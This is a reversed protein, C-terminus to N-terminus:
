RSLSLRARGGRSPDGSSGYVRPGDFQPDFASRYTGDAQLDFSAAVWGRPLQLSLRGRAVGGPRPDFVYQSWGPATPRIGFLRRVIVNAPASGWPHAWSMNPKDDAIWSETTAVAGHNLMELWSRPGDRTMLAVAARDEGHEFLTELLFQATFVSCSMGKQKIFELCRGIRDPPALGFRLAYMNAHLSSHRSGLSDVYLGTAEDFLDRNFARRLQDALEAFQRSEDGHGLWQALKSLLDLDWYAYANPVADAQGFEYGDRCSPPWDVHQERPFERILGDTMLAHFSTKDRLYEYHEAVFEYDGSHLLYEYFLPIYLQWWEIPWTPHDILYALTRRATDYTGETCFQTLMTVYADAEYALRERTLCDTYVDATAHAVSNRCLHWIRTLRDDSCEFTSREPDFPAGIAIARLTRRPDFPGRWGVIEAYRFMRVGFHSLPESEPAFTWLEQYCNGTRLQYRAHGNPQLEEALRVEVAGGGAPCALEIGGLVARGFDFLYNGEGLQTVAANLRAIQYPPADCIELEEVVGEACRAPQWQSDDFGTQRWGQPYAGARGDIHERYEGPGPDGKFFQDIAQCEWCVARYINNADRQKWHQNTVIRQRSGDACTVDLCLAFGKNEGRSAVALANQGIRLLATVDYEQLVPTGDKLPRFPGVAALDGNLFVRYKIFSGGVLWQEYKYKSPLLQWHHIAYTHPDAVIRLTASSIKARLSFEHRCFVNGPGGIWEAGHFSTTSDINDRM